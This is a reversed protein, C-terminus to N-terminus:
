PLAGRAAESGVKVEGFQVLGSPRATGHAAAAAAASPSPHTAALQARCSPVNQIATMSDTPKTTRPLTNDNGEDSAPADTRASATMRPRVPIM